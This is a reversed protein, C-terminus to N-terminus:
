GNEKSFLFYEEYGEFGLMCALMHQADATSVAQRTSIEKAISKFRLVPIFEKDNM